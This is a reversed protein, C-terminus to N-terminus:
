GASPQEVKTPAAQETDLAPRKAALSPGAGILNNIWRTDPDIDVLLAKTLLTLPIALLAGLAGIAWAWFTLALFTATVSLGVADGVVKPQIISQIVFNVVSYIVIVTLMMQWGGELLGLLAPPVLGIVFGVNPIYNTIFSLLGWLIPLPIGILALAAADFVAVILGFVTSVVLYKRTGRAFTTLATVVDPRARSVVALRQGYGAADIGMFFVLAFVFVVNSFVSAFASLADTLSGLVSSLDFQEGVTNAEEAGIGLEQLRQQLSVVLEDARDAYQPLTTALRAVSVALTLVLGILVAYLVVLIAVTAVWRPAGRAEVWTQVPSVAIVLMLALFVPALIGALERIGAVTVVLGALGLLVVLGRPLAHSRPSGPDETMPDAEGAFQQITGREWLVTNVLAAAVHLLQTGLGFAGKVVIDLPHPRHKV